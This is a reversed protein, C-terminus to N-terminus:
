LRIRLPRSLCKPGRPTRCGPRGRVAAAESLRDLSPGAAFPMVVVKTRDLTGVQSIRHSRSQCAGGGAGVSAPMLVDTLLCEHKAFDLDGDAVVCLCGGASTDAKPGVQDAVPRVRHVRFPAPYDASPRGVAWSVYVVGAPYDTQSDPRRRTTRLRVNGGLSCSSGSGMESRAISAQAPSMQRTM